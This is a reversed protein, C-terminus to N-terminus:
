SMNNIIDDPIDFNAHVSQVDDHDELAEILRLCQSAKQGELQVTTQPVYTIESNLTPLNNSRIVELIDNFKEPATYVVITNDETKIDEIDYDLLIEMVNDETTANADINIVGKKDFLYAVCGTEGLNGGNKSFITRIEPTTRNKNDTMCEVMIAVGGPGYGEYRVEEYTSGELAGTGKKIAREINDMPMNNERAKLVATRLRPNSNLDDGGVRAAVTIERILKTFVKGKKADQAAKRHKINAWKSHGSM